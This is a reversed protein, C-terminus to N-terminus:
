PTFTLSSAQSPRLVPTSGCGLIRSEQHSQKEGAMFSVCVWGWQWWPFCGTRLTNARIAVATDGDLNM